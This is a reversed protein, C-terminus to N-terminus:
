ITVKDVGKLFDETLGSDKLHVTNDDVRLHPAIAQAVARPQEFIEKLMYHRYGGKQVQEPSWEIHTLTPKLIKGSVEVLQFNMGKVSIIQNDELFLVDRTYPMIAQLDSAVIMEDKGVGLILPPGNKFAVM